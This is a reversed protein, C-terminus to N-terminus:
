IAEPPPSHIEIYPNLVNAIDRVALRDINDESMAGGLYETHWYDIESEGELETKETESNEESSSDMLSVKHEDDLVFEVVVENCLIATLFLILHILKV